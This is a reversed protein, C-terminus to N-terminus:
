SRPFGPAGDKRTGNAFPHANWLEVEQSKSKSRGTPRIYARLIANIRTQYGRERCFWRLLEADLIVTVSEKPM